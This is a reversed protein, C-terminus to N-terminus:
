FFLGYVRLSADELSTFTGATNGYAAINSTFNGETTFILGESSNFFSVIPAFTSLFDLGAQTAGIYTLYLKGNGDEVIPTDFCYFAAYNDGTVNDQFIIRINNDCSDGKEFDLSLSYEIFSYGLDNLKNNIDIIMQDHNPSTLPNSGLSPRYLFIPTVAKVLYEADTIIFSPTSDPIIKLGDSVNVFEKSTEDYIFSTLIVGNISVPEIFYFGDATIVIPADIEVNKGNELFTITVSRTNPDFDFSAIPLDNLLINYFPTEPDPTLHNFSAIAAELNLDSPTAPRLKLITIDSGYDTKSELVVEETTASLINFVYEGDNDNNNFEYIAQFVSRTELVLELKLTKDIRYTITNDETGSLYDSKLTVFGNEDFDMLMTSAGFNENPSYLGIWGYEPTTLVNSYETKIQDVRENITQDFLPEVDNDTCSIAVLILAFVSSTLKLLNFIKKM